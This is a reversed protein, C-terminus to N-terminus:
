LLVIAAGVMRFMQRGGRDQPRGGALSGHTLSGPLGSVSDYRWTLHPAQSRTTGRRLRARQQRARWATPASTKARASSAIRTAGRATPAGAVTSAPRASM